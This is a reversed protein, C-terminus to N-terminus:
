PLYYNPNPMKFTKDAIAAWSTASSTASTASSTTARRSSTPAPGPSTSSPPVPCGRPSPRGASSPRTSTPRTRGVPPKTFLGDTYGGHGIDLPTPAPYGADIEPRRRCTGPTPLTVSTIDPLGAATDSQLNAVTAQHQTDGRGTIWFIAYGDAKAQNVLDLMGANGPVHEGHIHGIDARRLHREHDPQLGLQQLARLELHDTDHRRRRARDRPTGVKSRAHLWNEGKSAVSEAENAYNSDLNLSAAWSRKRGSTATPAGYYNKAYARAVDINTMQSESNPTYTLDAPQMGAIAVTAATALGAIVLGLGLWLSRRPRTFRKM